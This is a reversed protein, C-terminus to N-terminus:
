LPTIPKIMQVSAVAYGLSEYLARAASNTGFVNLSIAQSSVSRAFDEAATMAARGFGNRRFEQRIDIAWVFMTDARDPDIGLWLSGVDTGAADVVALIWMGPTALGAPLLEPLQARADTLCVEFSFGTAQSREAAFVRPAEEAWPEFEEPTMPRLTVVPTRINPGAGSDVLQNHAGLKQILRSTVVDLPDV